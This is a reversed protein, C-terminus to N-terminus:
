YFINLLIYITKTKDIMKHIKGLMENQGWDMNKGDNKQFWFQNPKLFIISILSESLLM